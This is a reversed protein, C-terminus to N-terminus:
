NKIKSEHQNAAHMQLYSKVDFKYFMKKGLSTLITQSVVHQKGAMVSLHRFRNLVRPFNQLVSCHGQKSRFHSSASM